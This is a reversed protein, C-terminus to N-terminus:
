LTEKLVILTRLTADPVLDSPPELDGALITAFNIPVPVCIIKTVPCPSERSEILILFFRLRQDIKMLATSCINCMRRSAKRRWCSHYGFPLCWQIVCSFNWSSFEVTMDNAGTSIKVFCKYINRIDVRISRPILVAETRVKVPMSCKGLYETNGIAIPHTGSEYGAGNKTIGQPANKVCCIPFGRPRRTSHRMEGALRRLPEWFRLSCVRAMAVAVQSSWRVHLVQLTRRATKAM